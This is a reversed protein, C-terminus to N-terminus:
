KKRFKRTIYFGVSLVLALALVPHIYLVYDRRLFNTKNLSDKGKIEVSNLSLPFSAKVKQLDNVIYRRAEPFVFLSSTNITGEYLHRGVMDKVLVQGYPVLHVNGENQFFLTISRPYQFIFFNKPWSVDIISLNFREGGVKRLLILSSVSPLVKTEEQQEQPPILKAVVAAYHGGPSLDDRNKVVIEFIKKEGIELDLLNSEFSLFSSLSYSFSGPQQGLFAIAGTQDQQKFDIAFMELSIPSNTNNTYTIELKKEEGPKELVVETYAPSVVLGKEKALIPPVLISFGFLWLLLHPAFHRAMM